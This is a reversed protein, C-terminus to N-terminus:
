LNACFPVKAPVILAKKAPGHVPNGWDRPIGGSMYVLVYVCLIISNVTIM